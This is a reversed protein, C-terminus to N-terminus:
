KCSYTSSLILFKESDYLMVKDDNDLFIIPDTNFECVAIQNTLIGDSNMFILEKTIKSLMIIDDNSDILFKDSDIEIWKQILGTTENM